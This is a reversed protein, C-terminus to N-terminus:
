LCFALAILPGRILADYELDDDEFDLSISRYGVELRVSKGLEARLGALAQWTLQTGVGFGGVDARLAIAWRGGLPIKGRAGVWPDIWSEEARASPNGAVESGFELDVYRLGAIAEWDAAGGLPLGAGLELMWIDTDTRLSGEDDALSLYLGDALLSFRRDPARAELALLFAGDIQGFPSLNEGIDVPPESGASGNGDIGALWLFPELTFSWRSTEDEARAPRAESPQLGDVTADGSLSAPGSPGGVLCLLLARLIM